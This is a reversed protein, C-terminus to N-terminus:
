GAARRLAAVADVLADRPGGRALREVEGAAASVAPFGYTGASGHLRHALTVIRPAVSADAGLREVLECLESVQGPLSAAYAVRLDAFLDEVSAPAEVAAPAQVAPLDVFFTAGPGGPLLGVAGGHQDVIAKSIALGLGTGGRKAGLQAFKRFLHDVRDAPVGPGEDKVLIRVRAGCARVIVVVSADPPSFRVANSLLNTLVQLLRDRDGLVTGPEETVRALRVGANTAAGGMGELAADVLADVQLPVLELELQGAEMKDLDLMDNILRVLRDSNTRAVDVLEALAPPTAGFVGGAILGLAGHISTLPTRLEHSVISVFEDKRRDGRKRETIDRVIALVEEEGCRLVRVELDAAREQCEFVRVEGPDFRPGARQAVLRELAPPARAGTRVDSLTGDADLRYLTDPLAAVLAR